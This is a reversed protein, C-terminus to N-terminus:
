FFCCLVWVSLAFLAVGPKYSHTETTANYIRPLNQLYLTEPNFFGCGYSAILISNTKRYNQFTCVRMVYHKYKYYFMLYNRHLAIFIEATVVHDTQLSWWTAKKKELSLQYGASLTKYRNMKNEHTYSETASKNLYTRKTSVLRKLTLLSLRRTWIKDIRCFM